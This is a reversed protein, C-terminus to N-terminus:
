SHINDRSENKKAKIEEIPTNVWFWYPNGMKYNHERAEMSFHKAVIPMALSKDKWREETTRDLAEIDNGCPISNRIEDWSHQLARICKETPMDPLVVGRNTDNKRDLKPIDIKEKFFIQETYNKGVFGERRHRRCWKLWRDRMAALEEMTKVLETGVCRVCPIKYHYATQFMATYNLFNNQMDRIDFLVWSPKKHKPEIRTPGKGATVLEGYAIHFKGHKAEEKLYEIIHNWSRMLGSLYTAEM